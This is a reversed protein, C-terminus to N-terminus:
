SGTRAIEVVKFDGWAQGKEVMLSRPGNDIIARNGRPSLLVGTVFPFQNPDKALVPSCALLLFFLLKRVM